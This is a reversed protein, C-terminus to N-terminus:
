EGDAVIGPYDQDADGKDEYKQPHSESGELGLDLVRGGWGYPDKGRGKLVEALDEQGILKQLVDLVAEDHAPSGGQQRKGKSKRRGVDNRPVPLAAQCQPDQHRAHCGM